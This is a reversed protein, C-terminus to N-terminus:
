GKNEKRKPKQPNELEFIRQESMDLRGILGNFANKM